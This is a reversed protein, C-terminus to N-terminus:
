YDAEDMKARWEELAKKAPESAFLRSGDGAFQQMCGARGFVYISNDPGIALTGEQTLFGGNKLSPIVIYLEDGAPTIQVVDRFTVSQGIANKVGPVPEEDKILIYVNGLGDGCIDETTYPFYKRYIREGSRSYRYLLSERHTYFYYSGDRGLYLKVRDDWCWLWRRGLRTSQGGPFGFTRRIWGGDAKDGEWVKIRNGELDYRELEHDNKEERRRYVLLTNDRDLLLWEVNDLDFPQSSQPQRGKRGGLKFELRGDDTALFEVSPRKKSWLALRDTGFSAISDVHWDRAVGWRQQFDSNYSAFIEFPHVEGKVFFRGEEDIMAREITLSRIGCRTPDLWLFWRSVRTTPHIRQWLDDPLYASAGCFECSTTRASGDVSLVGGCQPCKFVVPEASPASPPLATGVDTAPLQDTSECVLHSVSPLEERYSDPLERISTIVGTDPNALYGTAAAATADIMNIPSDTDSFRPDERTVRVMGSHPAPWLDAECTAGNEQFGFATAIRSLLESWAEHPIVLQEACSACHVGEALANVPTLARCAACNIQAEIGVGIKSM